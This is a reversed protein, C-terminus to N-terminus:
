VFRADEASGQHMMAGHCLPHYVFVDQQPGCAADPAAGFQRLTKL